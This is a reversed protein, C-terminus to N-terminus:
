PCIDFAKKLTRTDQTDPHNPHRVIAADLTHQAGKWDKPNRFCAQYVALRNALGPRENAYVRLAPEIANAFPLSPEAGNRKAEWVLHDFLTSTVHAYRDLETTASNSGDAGQATAALWEGCLKFDRKVVDPALGSCHLMALSFQARPISSKQRALQLTETLWKAQAATPTGQGDKYWRSDEVENTWKIYTAVRQPTTDSPTISLSPPPAPAIVEDVSIESPSSFQGLLGSVTAYAEYFYGEAASVALAIKNRMAYSSDPPSYNSIAKYVVMYTPVLAVFVGLKLMSPKHSKISAQMVEKRLVLWKAVQNAVSPLPPRYGIQDERRFFWIKEKNVKGYKNLIDDITQILTQHPMIEPCPNIENDQDILLKLSNFKQCLNKEESLFTLDSRNIEKGISRVSSTETPENQSVHSHGSHMAFMRGHLKLDGVLKILATNFISYELGGDRIRKYTYGDGEDNRRPYELCSIRDLLCGLQYLDERWDITKLCMQLIDKHPQQTWFVKDSLHHSRSQSRCTELLMLRSLMRCSYRDVLQGNKDFGLFPQTEILIKKFVAADFDIITLDQDFDISSGFEVVVNRGDAIFEARRSKNYAPSLSFNGEHLDCHVIEEKHLDHLIRLASLAFRLIHEPNQFVFECRNGLGGRVARMRLMAWHKITPGADHTTIEHKAVAPRGDNLLTTHTDSEISEIRRQVGRIRPDKRALHRLIDGENGSFPRYDIKPPLPPKSRDYQFTKKWQRDSHSLTLTVGKLPHEIIRKGFNKNYSEVFYKTWYHMGKEHDSVGDENANTNQDTRTPTM